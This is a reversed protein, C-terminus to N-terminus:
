GRDLVEYEGNGLAKIQGRAILDDIYESVADQYDLEDQFWRELEERDIIDKDM